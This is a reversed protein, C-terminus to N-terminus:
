HKIWKSKGRMLQTFEELKINSLRIKANRLAAFRSNKYRRVVYEPVNLKTSLIAHAIHMYIAEEALKPIKSDLDYALGDSIYELIILQDKLNSSFAFKGERDNVTFWGNFNSVVPDEGYRQGYAAEWWTWNYVNANYEQASLYGTINRDNAKKWRSRTITQQSELNEGVQDQTPVGDGDQLLPQQPNSTLQTPFITHKVGTKDVWSMQVYNVYDQPIIATASPSLSLEQSKVSRLTDYSFEQLGRKAHFIVDSRKVRGILKDVGVYAVMFNDIVDKLKIYQYSGYNDWQAQQNLQIKVGLGQLVVPTLPVNNFTILNNTVSYMKGTYLLASSTIAFQITDTQLPGFTGPDFKLSDGVQYGSGGDIISYSVEGFAGNWTLNALLALGSGTGPAGDYQPFVPIQAAPYPTSAPPVGWATGPTSGAFVFTATSLVVGNAEPPYLVWNNGVGTKDVFIKYNANNDVGADVLNTDLTCTLSSIASNTLEVQSGDYYQANTETILGGNPYSM